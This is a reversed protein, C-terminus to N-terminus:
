RVVELKRMHAVIWELESATFETNNEPMFEPYQDGHWANISGLANNRAVVNWIGVLTTPVFSLSCSERRRLMEALEAVTGPVKEIIRDRPLFRGVRDGARVADDDHIVMEGTKTIYFMM